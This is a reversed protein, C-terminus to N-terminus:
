WGCRRARGRRAARVGRDASRLAEATRAPRRRRHRRGDPRLGLEAGSSRTGATPRAPVRGPDIGNLVVTVRDARAGRRVLENKIDSSVAIVRPFRRSCGSARGSLLPLARAGSQGTWGHATALPIVGRGGRSCVARAPQDQLRARARHRHRRERVLSALPRWIGPDFSHRERVEVYDIDLQARASTSASCRIACTASTASPSRSARRSRARRRRASDDEGSRRRHRPREATRPDVHPRADRRRKGGGGATASARPWRSRGAWSTPPPSPLPRRSIARGARRRGHRSARLAMLVLVSVGRSSRSRSVRRRGPRDARRRRAVLAVLNVVPIAASVLTRWSRPARLSVRVNDRGRWLEGFFVHRLTRRIASTCTACARRGRRARLGARPAQPLSRRRRLNRAVHRLRRRAEFAARRVAMNGSGLWDVRKRARPPHRRLRDYLRQVWTGPRRRGAPRASRRSRRTPWSASRRPFGTRASRTTPTSSRWSTAARRRRGGPQAARRAPRGAARARDRRGARAVAASEDTSGNDAVVIEVRGAPYHARRRHECAANSGRARRKPGSHRVVRDPRGDNRQNRGGGPRGADRCRRSRAPM